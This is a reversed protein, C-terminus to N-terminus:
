WLERDFDRPRRRHVNELSIDRAIGLEGKARTMARLEDRFSLGSQTLLVRVRSSRDIERRVSKGFAADRTVGLSREVKEVDISGLNLGALGDLTGLRSLLLLQTSSFEPAELSTKLKVSFPWSRITGLQEISPTDFIFARPVISSYESLKSLVLADSRVSSLPLMKGDFGNTVELREGRISTLKITQGMEVVGDVRFLYPRKRVPLVAVLEGALFNGWKTEVVSDTSGRATSIIEERFSQAERSNNFIHIGIPNGNRLAQLVEKQTSVIALRRTLFVEVSLDEFVQEITMVPAAEQATEFDGPKPIAPPLPRRVLGQIMKASHAMEIQSFALRTFSGMELHVRGLLLRKEKPDDLVTDLYSQEKETRGLVVMRGGDRRGPVTSTVDSSEDRKGLFEVAEPQERVFSEIRARVKPSVMQSLAGIGLAKQDIVQDVSSDGRRLLSLDLKEKTEITGLERPSELLQECTSRFASWTDLSRSIGLRYLFESHFIDPVPSVFVPTLGFDLSPRRGDRLPNLGLDEAQSRWRFRLEDLSVSTKQTRTRLSSVERSRHTAGFAKSADIVQKRRSSFESVADQNLNGLELSGLVPGRLGFGVSDYLRHALESRYIIELVPQVRYLRASNIARVEGEYNAGNLLIVHSHVHPDQSRSLLHPFEFASVGEAAVVESRISTWSETLELYRISSEVAEGHAKLIESAQSGESLAWLVSVTKPASFVMDYAINKIRSSGTGRIYELTGYLNDRDEVEQLGRGLSRPRPAAIMTEFPDEIEERFYYDFNFRGIPFVRM